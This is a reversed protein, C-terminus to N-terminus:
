KSPIRLDESLLEETAPLLGGDDGPAGLGGFGRGWHVVGGFDRANRAIPSGYGRYGHRRSKRPRVTEASEIEPSM